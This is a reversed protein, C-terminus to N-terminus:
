VILTLTESSPSVIPFHLRRHIGKIHRPPHDPRCPFAKQQRLNEGCSFKETEQTVSCPLEFDKRDNQSPYNYQKITQLPRNRRRRGDVAVSRLSRSVDVVYCRLYPVPITEFAEFPTSHGTGSNGVQYPLTPAANDSIAVTSRALGVHLISHPPIWLLIM